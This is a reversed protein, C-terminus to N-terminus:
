GVLLAHSRGNATSLGRCGYSHGRGGKEYDIFWKDNSVGAFVMRRFPLGPKVVIDTAQYKREPNALAFANRRTAVTFADKLSRPMEETSVLPGFVGDLIHEKEAKSLTAPSRPALMTLKEGESTPARPFSLNDDRTMEFSYFFFGCLAVLVSM